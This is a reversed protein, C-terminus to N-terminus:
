WERIIEPNKFIEELEEASNFIFSDGNCYSKIGVVEPHNKDGAMLVPVSDSSNKEVIRHIKKVFPCTADIYDISLEDCKRLVSKEVGHTRIVVKKDPSVDEINEKFLFLLRKVM